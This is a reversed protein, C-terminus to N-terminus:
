EIVPFRVTGSLAGAVWLPKCDEVAVYCCLAGDIPDVYQGYEDLANVKGEEYVHAEVKRDSQDESVKM